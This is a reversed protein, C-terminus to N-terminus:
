VYDDDGFDFNDLVPNVDDLVSEDFEDVADDETSVDKFDDMSFMSNLEAQEAEEQAQKEAEHEAVAQEAEEKAKAFFDTLTQKYKSSRAAKVKGYTEQINTNNPIGNPYSSGAEPFLKHSM